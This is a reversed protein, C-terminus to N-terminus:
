RRAARRFQPIIETPRVLPGAILHAFFAIFAAYPLFPVTTRGRAQRRASPFMIQQFTFFSICLPLALRPPPLRILPAVLPGYKYLGLLGLNAAVGAM